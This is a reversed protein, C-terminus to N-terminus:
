NCTTGLKKGSIPNNHTTEVTLQNQTSELHQYFCEGTLDQYFTDASGVYFNQLGDNTVQPKNESNVQQNLTTAAKLKNDLFTHTANQLNQFMLFPKPIPSNMNDVNPSIKFNYSSEHITVQEAHGDSTTTRTNVQQNMLHNPMTKSSPQTPFQNTLILQQQIHTTVTGAATEVYGRASWARTIKYNKVAPPQAPLESVTASPTIHYDTLKGVIKKDSSATDLLLNAAVVWYDAKVNLKINFRHSNDKGANVPTNLMAAFPTIDILYPPINLADIAPIPTWLHPSFGGTYIYPFPWAVGALKDDIYVQIERYTAVNGGPLYWFEENGHPTAYVELYAHTINAPLNFTATAETAPADPTLTFYPQNKVPSAISKIINPQPQAPWQNNAEYFTIKASIRYVGNLTPSTSNDLQVMFNQPSKSTFLSNYQTLDKEVHWQIAHHPPEPTTFRLLETQGLYIFGYRDYQAGDIKGDMDLIIKAWPGHCDAPPNYVSDSTKGFADFPFDKTIIVTCSKTTPRVIPSSTVPSGMITQVPPSATKVPTTGWALNTVILTVLTATRIINGTMM